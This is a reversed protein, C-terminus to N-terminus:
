LDVNLYFLLNFRNHWQTKNQIVVFYALFKKLNLYCLEFYFLCELVNCSFEMSVKKNIYSVVQWSELYKLFVISVFIHLHIKKNIQYSLKDIDKKISLSTSKTNKKTM